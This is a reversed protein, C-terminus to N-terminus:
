INWKDNQVIQVRIIKNISVGTHVEREQRNRRQRSIREKSNKVILAKKQKERGRRQTHHREVISDKMESDFKFNCLLQWLGFLGHQGSGAILARGLVNATGALTSGAWGNAFLLRPLEQPLQKHILFIKFLKQLMWAHILGTYQGSQLDNHLFAEIFLTEHRNTPLSPFLL